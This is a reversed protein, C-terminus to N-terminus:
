PRFIKLRSQIFQGGAPRAAVDLTMTKGVPADLPVAIPDGAHLAHAYRNWSPATGGPEYLRWQFSDLDVPARFTIIPQPAGPSADTKSGSLRLPVYVNGDASQVSGILGIKEPDLGAPLVVDGVPWQMSGGSPLAADMRYYVRLPLARAVVVVQQGGLGHVDPATILLNRDTQRDFPSRGIVFSLVEL